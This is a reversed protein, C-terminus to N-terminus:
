IWKLVVSECLFQLGDMGSFVYVVQGNGKGVFFELWSDDIFMWGFMIDVNWCDYCLYVCDGNGDEYDQLYIYNVSVGFYGLLVGVCLDFNQDNCGWLGGFVSVDISYGFEVYCSFGCDFCVVGVLNGFGYIVMELGKIVIVCDYFELVIYVILLDMWLLCGGGILGGDIQIGLWLGSM